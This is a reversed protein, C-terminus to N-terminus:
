FLTPYVLLAARIQDQTVEVDWETKGPRRLMVLRIAGARNKKDQIVYPMCGDPDLLSFDLPLFFRQITERIIIWDVWALRNHTMSLWAELLMGAAVAEGHRIPVGSQLARSELAHGLTHGFNLIKRFGGERPDQDVVKIKAAIARLVYEPDLADFTRLTSLDRWLSDDQVLGHKLMEAFGSRREELPLTKLFVPDIVLADPKCFTGVINKTHDLDIGTKGGIAADVMGLLSTPIHVFPIGRKFTSAIFGGMDTVVGGGLNLVLSHRDVGKDMLTRWLTAATHLNKNAEGAPMEIPDGALDLQQQVLPWCYRLTNADVLTVLQSFQQDALWARFAAWAGEGSFLQHEPTTPNM